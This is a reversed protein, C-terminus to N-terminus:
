CRVGSREHGTFIHTPTYTAGTVDTPRKNARKGLQGGCTAAFTSSRPGAPCWPLSSNGRAVSRRAGGGKRATAVRAASHSVQALERTMRLTIVSTVSTLRRRAYFCLLSLTLTRNTRHPSSYFSLPALLPLLPHHVTPSRCPNRHTEIFLQM